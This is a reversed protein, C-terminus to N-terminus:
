GKLYGGGWTRTARSPGPRQPCGAARAIAPPSSASGRSPPSALCLGLAKWLSRSGRSSPSRYHAPPSGPVSLGPCRARSGPRWLSDSMEPGHSGHSTDLSQSSSDGLLSNPTLSGSCGWGLLQVKAGQQRWSDGCVISWSGRGRRLRFGSRLCRGM